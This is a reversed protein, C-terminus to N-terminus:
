RCINVLVELGGLEVAAACVIAVEQLYGFSIRADFFMRTVDRMAEVVDVPGTLDFSSRPGSNAFGIQAAM